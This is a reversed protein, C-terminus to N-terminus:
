PKALLELAALALAASGTKITPEPDPAWLSSHLSPLKTPDGGAAEFTAAPTAGLWFMLSPANAARGFEGFDEGGMTPPPASVKDKGFHAEFVATIRKALEPDNHNSQYGGAQVAVLPEKPAGAAAAEAKAIRAIAAFVRERVEPKFTRVTLKLSAEDPIINYTTGGRIAGVTVVVPELPDKERAVITQLAVVIRAAIVIPDVTLHPTSGHGGKGYVTIDVRDSNANAYGPTIGLSGAPLYPVDHLSLAFNPRGFREFFGDKLMAMAGGGGEEAPQGVLILTGRWENKVAALLAAAGVLTTMHVDHGCGHMVEVTEGEDNKATAVSAYPLGTREEMPLADMDARLLVIPGPGNKLVAVVGTKGVGTTVEYGLARLKEALKAATRVEQYGLEPNRHLDEYFVRLEPYISAAPSKPPDPSAAALAASFGAIVLALLSRRM